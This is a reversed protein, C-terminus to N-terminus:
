ILLWLRGKKRERLALCLRPLSIVLLRLAAPTSLTIINVLTLYYSNNIAKVYPHLSKKM